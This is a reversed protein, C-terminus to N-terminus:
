TIFLLYSDVQGVKYRQQYDAEHPAVADSGRPMM